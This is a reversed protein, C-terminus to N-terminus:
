AGFGDSCCDSCVASNDQFRGCVPCNGEWRRIRGIEPGKSRFLEPMQSGIALKVRKWFGFSFRDPHGGLPNGSLANPSAPSSLSLVNVNM